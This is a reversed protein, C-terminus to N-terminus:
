RKKRVKVFDALTFESSKGKKIEVKDAVEDKVILNIRLLKSIRRAVDLRPKLSGQEWKSVISERENLFKAFDEQKMGRKERAIRILTPYDDVVKFQPGEDRKTKSKFARGTYGGGVSKKVVGYKTCNSCVRLEGGEVDALVLRAEKGCMECLAM